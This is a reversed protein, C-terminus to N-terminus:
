ILSNTGYIHALYHDDHRLSYRIDFHHQQDHVHYQYHKGQKTASRGGSTLGQGSKVGRWRWRSVRTVGLNGAVLQRTYLLQGAKRVLCELHDVNRDFTKRLYWVSNKMMIMATWIIAHLNSYVGGEEKLLPAALRASLGCAGPFWVQFNCQDFKQWVKSIVLLVQVLM